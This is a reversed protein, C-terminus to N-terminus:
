RRLLLCVAAYVCRHCHAEDVAFRCASRVRPTGMLVGRGCRSVSGSRDRRYLQDCACLCVCVLLCPIATVGACLPRRRGVDRRRVVDARRAIRHPSVITLTGNRSACMRM